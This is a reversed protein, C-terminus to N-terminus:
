NFTERRITPNVYFSLEQPLVKITVKGQPGKEGDVNWIESRKPTISIENVRWTLDRKFPLGNFIYFFIVKFWSFINHYTFLRVTILGDNLKNQATFRKLRFGAMRRGSSLMVLFGKYREEGLATKILFETKYTRFVDSIANIIYGVVGFLKTAIRLRKYSVNSFKGWAAGYIFYTDNLKNVDVFFANYGHLLELNAVVNKQMGLTKAYDNATGFPLLLIDPRNNKAILMLGNVVSHLTGDGGCVILRKYNSAIKSITNSVVEHKEIRHIDYHFDHENLYSIIRKISRKYRGKGASKNYILLIDHM